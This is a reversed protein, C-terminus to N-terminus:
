DTVLIMNPGAPIQSHTRTHTENRDAEGSQWELRGQEGPLLALGQASM